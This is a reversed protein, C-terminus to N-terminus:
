REGPFSPLAKNPFKRTYFRCADDPCIFDVRVGHVALAPWWDLWKCDAAQWITPKDRHAHAVAAFKRDPADFLPELQSDPFEVFRDEATETLSVVEVFEPNGAHRLLWKLFVDGAGKPPTLKTKHQYEGLIRYEDDIVVVGSTQIATLRRICEEICDPSVDQHQSNAVLLVNTDIVVKSM